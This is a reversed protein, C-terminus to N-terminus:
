PRRRKNGHAKLKRKQARTLSQLGKESVQDLIANIEMEELPDDLTRPASRRAGPGTKASRGSRAPRASTHGGAFAPLPIKPIWAISEALGFAKATLLVSSAALLYWVLDGVLRSSTFQLLDIVAIVVALVWGPIGFFFRVNPLYAVFTFLLSLSLWGAETAGLYFGADLGIATLLTAILGPVVTLFGFYWLMRVRGLAGEIQSGIFYIYVVTLVRWISPANPVWWTLLRWIEGNLVLDSRFLLWKSIPITPGEAARMFMSFAIVAAAIGSTGVDLTGIRFWPEQVSTFRSPRDSFMAEVYRAWCGEGLVRITSAEPTWSM